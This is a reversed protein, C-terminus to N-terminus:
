EDTKRESPVMLEKEVMQRIFTRVDSQATELSVDFEDAIIRTLEAMTRGDSLRWVASGTPNLTIMKNEGPHVIVIQGGIDRYALKPAPLYVTQSDVMVNEKM